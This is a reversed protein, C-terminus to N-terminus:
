MVAAWRPQLKSGGATGGRQQQGNDDASDHLTSHSASVRSYLAESFAAYRKSTAGMRQALVTSPVHLNRMNRQTVMRLMLIRSLMAQLLGPRPQFTSSSRVQTQHDCGCVCGLEDGQLGDIIACATHIAQARSSKLKESGRRLHGQVVVFFSPPSELRRSTDAQM